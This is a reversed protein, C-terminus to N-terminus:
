LMSLLADWYLLAGLKFNGDGLASVFCTVLNGLMWYARMICYCYPLGFQSEVEVSVVDELHGKTTVFTKCLNITDLPRVYHM